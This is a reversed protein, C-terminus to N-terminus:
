VMLAGGNSDIAAGTIFASRKSLLFAIVEAQEEATAWRRLPRKQAVTQRHSETTNNMIMPTLTGGPCFANIRINQPGYERAIHRALGIVGHKSATYHAGGWVSTSRGAMSAVLVISGSNQELMFPLLESCCLFAGSLNVALVKEWQAFTIEGFRSTNLIGASVVLHDVSPLNDGAMAGMKKMHSERSVDAKITLAEAKGMANIEAAVGALGEGDMDVLLLSTGAEALLMATAKGMGSAAGTIVAGKGEFESHCDAPKKEPLM